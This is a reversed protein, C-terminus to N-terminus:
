IASERKLNATVAAAEDAIMGLVATALAARLAADDNEQMINEVKTLLVHLRDLEPVSKSKPAVVKERMPATIKSLSDTPIKGADHLKQVVPYVKNEADRYKQRQELKAAHVREQAERQEQETVVGAKKGNLDVREVGALLKNEYNWDHTYFNIAAERRDDDLTKDKALDAIINKKLPRKMAPAIFFTAPYKEALHQIMEDIQERPYTRRHLMM